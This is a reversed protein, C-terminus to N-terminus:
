RVMLLYAFSVLKIPFFPSQFFAPHADKHLLFIRPHMDFCQLDTSNVSDTDLHKWLNQLYKHSMHPYWQINLLTDIHHMSMHDFIRLHCTHMCQFLWDLWSNWRSTGWSNWDKVWWLLCKFLTGRRRLYNHLKGSLMLGIWRSSRGRSYKAAPRPKWSVANFPVNVQLFPWSWFSVIDVQVM